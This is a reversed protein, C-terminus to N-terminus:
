FGYDYASKKPENSFRVSNSLHKRFKATVGAKSLATYVSDSHKRPSEDFDGTVNGVLTMVAQAEEESLTLNVTKVITTKETKVAKAM